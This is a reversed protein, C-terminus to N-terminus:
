RLWSEEIRTGLMCGHRNCSLSLYREENPHHLLFVATSTDLPSPPILPCVCVAGQPCDCRREDATPQEAIEQPDVGNREGEEVREEEEERSRVHSSSGAEMIEM